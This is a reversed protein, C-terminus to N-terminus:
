WVFWLVYGVSNAFWDGVPNYTDNKLHNRITKLCCLVMVIMVPALTKGSFLVVDTYPLNCWLRNIWLLATFVGLIHLLKDYNAEFLTRDETAPNFIKM